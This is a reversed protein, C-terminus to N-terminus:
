FLYLHIYLQICRVMFNFNMFCMIKPYYYVMLIVLHNRFKLIGVQNFNMSEISIKVKIVVIDIVFKMSMRFNV